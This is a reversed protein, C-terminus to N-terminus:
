VHLIAVYVFLLDKCLYNCNTINSWNIYQQFFSLYILLNFLISTIQMVCTDDATHHAIIYTSYKLGEGKLHSVLGSTSGYYYKFHPITHLIDHNVLYKALYRINLKEIVIYYMM